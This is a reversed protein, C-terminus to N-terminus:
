THNVHAKKKKKPKEGWRRYLMFKATGLNHQWRGVSITLLDCLEKKPASSGVIRWWACHSICVMILFTASLCCTIIGM